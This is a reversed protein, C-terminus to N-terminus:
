KTKSRDVHYKGEQPYYEFTACFKEGDGKEMAARIAQYSMATNFLNAERGLKSPSHADSNSILTINDLESVRWNM